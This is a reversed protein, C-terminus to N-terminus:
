IKIKKTLSNKDSLDNTLFYHNLFAKIVPQKEIVEHYIILNNDDIESKEIKKKTISIKVISHPPIAAPKEYDKLLNLQSNMWLNLSRCFKFDFGNKHIIKIGAGNYSKPTVKGKNLTVEFDSRALPTMLVDDSSLSSLVQVFHSNLLVGRVGSSQAVVTAIHATLLANYTQIDIPQENLIALFDKKSLFDLYKDEHSSENKITNSM